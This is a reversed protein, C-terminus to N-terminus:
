HYLPNKANYPQPLYRVSSIKQKPVGYKPNYGFLNVYKDLDDLEEGMKCLLEFTTNVDNLARHADPLNLGYAVAANSLKHPYPKRDKYITLVDLLKLNKLCAEKQFTRLFFYLFSLDFHANYAALLLDQHSLMNVVGACTDEKSIGEKQLRSETIGTLDSIVAPLRRGPTLKVLFSSKDEVVIIGNNNVARLAAIEIIEDNKPNIGTTEVDFVVINKCCNFLSNLM